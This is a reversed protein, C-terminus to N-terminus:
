SGFILDWAGTSDSEFDDWFILGDPEQFEDAGVDFIGRRDPILADVGRGEGGIDDDVPSYVADDCYDIAPSTRALEPEGAGQNAWIRTPDTELRHSSFPDPLSAVEHAIVCDATYTAGAGAPAFVRDSGFGTTSVGNGEIVISSFLEARGNSEAGLLATGIGTSSTGWASVFALRALGGNRALIQRGSPENFVLAVGELLLFSGGGDVLAITGDDADFNATFYTQRIQ